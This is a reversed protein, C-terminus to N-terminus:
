LTFLSSLRSKKRRCLYAFIVDSPYLTPRDTDGVFFMQVSLSLLFVSPHRCFSFLIMFLFSIKCNSFDSKMALTISFTTFTVWGKKGRKPGQFFFCPFHLECDHSFLTQLRRASRPRCELTAFSVITRSLSCHGKNEGRRMGKLFNELTFSLVFVQRHTEKRRPLTIKALRRQRRKKEGQVITLLLLSVIVSSNKLGRASFCPFSNKRFTRM